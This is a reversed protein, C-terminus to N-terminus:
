VLYWDRVHRLIEGRDPAAGGRTAIELKRLGLALSADGLTDLAWRSFDGQLLHHRLSSAPVTELGKCFETVSRAVPEVAGNTQRFRFAKQVPLITDAYKRAHHVHPMERPEPTFVRWSGRRLMGVQSDSLGALADAPSVDSSVRQQLLGTVFYREEEVRTSMILHTTLREHIEPVLMSPRYTALLLNGHEPELYDASPTGRALFYHAEDIVTWHPLGTQVRAARLAALAVTVWAIKEPQSLGALMAVVSLPQEVLITPLVEPRPLPIRAGLVLVDARRGFVSHDGEPDIVCLRYRRALLREVLVGVLYSKGCRPDGSVLVSEPSSSLEVADGCADVGIQVRHRDPSPMTGRRELVQRVFRAVGDGGPRSLRADAIAALAPVAGRAAVGIEAMELLCRDNEADGFAIMNHESRRLEALAQRVGVAKDIGSPLVMMAERNFAVQSALAHSRILEVVETVHRDWTGVVIAGARFPVGRARLDALFTSPPPAALLWTRGDTPRWVVAGNEAVVADFSAFDMGTAILDEIVRGTVLLTVYGQAHAAGLASVVEPALRGEHAGTGDFDCALVRCFM